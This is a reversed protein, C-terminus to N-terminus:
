IRLPGARTLQFGFDCQSIAPGCIKQRFPAGCASQPNTCVSALEPASNVTLDLDLRDYEFFVSSPPKIAVISPQV